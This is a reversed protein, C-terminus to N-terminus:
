PLVLMADGFSYFRYRHAIAAAYIEMLRGVGGPLLSAVMALLTSRPLHFNTLLGDVHRWEYGPTVLLRTPGCWGGETWRDIPAPISELTRATTTGVAIVSSGRRGDSGALTRVVDADAACWEAHIPHDEVFETKVPAFTGAGVHLEVQLRRVGREDIRRLLRDTFHLGATPAAVSGANKSVGSAYVTQYAARDRDDATADGRVRRAHLIYPPLPTRGLAELAVPVDDIAPEPRVVWMEADRGILVLRQVTPRGDTDRLAVRMGARLRGNSKLMVRWCEKYDTAPELFLGEVRGGTDTREGVLRARLVRSRNFVMVDGPSVLGPLDSVARHELVSEDTRSVVLLRASDRPFAPATALLREPLNYDLADTRLMHREIKEPHGRQAVGPM